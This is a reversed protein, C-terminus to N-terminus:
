KQVSDLVMGTGTGAQFAFHSKYTLKFLVYCVYIYRIKIWFAFHLRYLQHLHFM